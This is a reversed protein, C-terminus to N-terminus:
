EDYVERAKSTGTPPGIINEDEMRDILRAARTYGIRFYRQLMSTSAKGKERVFAVAQDWLEDNGFKKHAVALNQEEELSERMDDWLPPTKLKPKSPSAASMNIQPEPVDEEIELNPATDVEDDDILDLDYAAADLEPAEPVVFDGEEDIDHATPLVIANEPPPPAEEALHSKPPEEAQQLAIVADMKAKETKQEETDVDWNEQKLDSKKVVDSAASIFNSRNAESSGRRMEQKWYDIIRNLEPDDVFCGQLRVPAPADPSQFLMDGQGLLREAGTTDLVVRSDTSSAVAFAIRAPFNAKILGTVVDVSPRQTALIMHIGTARAMQALRAIAKETEDPAMMMLDALEDVIIVVFPLKPKKRKAIKKNYDNINRAGTEAFLKYRDDMERLAWQLTGVVRDMDVVVPAALHPIGNYGTLEVRKPDVMVLKLDEPSNQLLLCAIIGNVCVSKGSGTAGAILMHPMKALDISVSQGAVDEGLGIALKSKAAIKGFNGNEMVDRLSVVNKAENPVEIGVYSKGPVPAQIRVSRAALALSLDDALSAIKNVKVKTRKGNRMVLYQPEVCYQIITPGEKIDVVQVPAGFSTLTEEIVIAEQHLRSDDAGDSSGLALMESLVPLHWERVRDTDRGMFIPQPAAPEKPPEPVKKEKKPKAKAPRKSRGSSGGSRGRRVDKERLPMGVPITPLGDEEDEEDDEVIEEAEATGGRMQASAQRAAKRKEREAQRKESQERLRLHLPLQRAEPNPDSQNFFEKFDNYNIGLLLVSAMVGLASFLVITLQVGVISTLVNTLFYGILGGGSQAEVVADLTTLGNSMVLSILTFLGEAILFLIAGGLLRPPRITLPLRLGWSILWIGIGGTALIGVPGGWGFATWMQDLLWGTAVGQEPSLVALLTFLSFLALVFGVVMAQTRLDFTFEPLKFRPESTKSKSKSKSRGRSSTGGRTKRTANASQKSRSTKTTKKSVTKSKQSTKAKAM